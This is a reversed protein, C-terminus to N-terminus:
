VYPLLRGGMIVGTWSLLVLVAVWKAAMPADEGAKVNWLRDSLSYYLVAIGGITIFTVKPVFTIENLYRSSDAQLILMGSFVNMVVGFVGLPLLRHIAAFSMSKWFGLVQLSVALATGFILSYGFFHLTQWPTFWRVHNILLEINATWGAMPDTPLVDTALRIEPHNIQGGRHGTEAMLLLTVVAFGLVLYLSTNSFRGLHRFRFLEIWAAVGTFAMGFLTLLAMDRHYNIVAKSIGSVPPDTLAWMSANGTVYTPVILIACIVFVALSSRKM